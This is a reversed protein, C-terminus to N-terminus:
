VAYFAVVFYISENNNYQGNSSNGYWSVTTGTWTLKMDSSGNIVTAARADGRAIMPYSGGPRFIIFLAPMVPFTYSTPHEEGFKGTGTYTGVHIQCNGKTASLIEMAAAHEALAGDIKANDANFDEMLIRDDREWQSLQYNPTHNTPM